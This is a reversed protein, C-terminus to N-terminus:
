GVPGTTSAFAQESPLPEGYGAARLLTILDGAQLRVPATIAQLSMAPCGCAATYLEAYVRGISHAWWQLPDAKGARNRILFGISGVAAADRVVKALWGDEREPSADVYGAKVDFLVGIVGQIDYQDASTRDGSRFGNDRGREAGPFGNERLCKAWRLEYAAGKDRSAKGM